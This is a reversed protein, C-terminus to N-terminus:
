KKIVGCLIRDGSNGTPDTKYDDEQAHVVLATGGEKLLSNDKGEQLTVFSSMLDASANGSQDAMINKLDGVHPGKPNEFGHQKNTTNFHKGASEFKPVECVGNEHFHIGHKGPTLGKAEVKVKVGEAAQELTATGAKQGHSNMLQVTIPSSKSMSSAGESKPDSKMNNNNSSCASLLIGLTLIGVGKAWKKM